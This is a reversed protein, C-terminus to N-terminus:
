SEANVPIAFVSGLPGGDEVFGIQPSDVAGDPGSQASGPDDFKTRSTGWERPYSQFTSPPEDVSHTSNEQAREQAVGCIDHKL